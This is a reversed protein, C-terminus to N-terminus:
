RELAKKQTRCFSSFSEVGASSPEKSSMPIQLEPGRKGCAAQEAQSGVNLDWTPRTEQFEHKVLHNGEPGAKWNVDFRVPSTELTVRFNM